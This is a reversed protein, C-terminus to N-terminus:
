EYMGGDVAGQGGIYFICNNFVRQPDPVLKLTMKTQNITQHQKKVYTLEICLQEGMPGFDSEGFNRM